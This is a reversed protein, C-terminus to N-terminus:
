PTERQAVLNIKGEVFALGDDDVKGEELRTGGDLIRGDQALTIVTRFPTKANGGVGLWWAILANDPLAAIEIHDPVNDDTKGTFVTAWDAQGPAQTWVRFAVVHPSRSVINIQIPASPDFRVIETMAPM